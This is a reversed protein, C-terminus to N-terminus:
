DAGEATPPKSYNLYHQRILRSCNDCRWFSRNGGCENIEDGYINRVFTMGKRHRCFLHKWFSM